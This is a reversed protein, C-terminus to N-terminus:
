GEPTQGVVVTGRMGQSGHPLSVFPYSGTPAGQFSVDYAQGTETMLVGLDLQNSRIFEAAAPAARAAEFAVSEPQGGVMVFRVVDGPPITIESPEFAYRDGRQVLRVLHVQGGEAPRTIRELTNPRPEEPPAELAPAEDSCGPVAASLIVAFMAGALLEVRRFRMSTPSSPM